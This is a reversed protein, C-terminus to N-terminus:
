RKWLRGCAVTSGRRRFVIGEARNTCIARSPRNIKIGLVCPTKFAKIQVELYGSLHEGLADFEEPTRLNPGEAFPVFDFPNPYHDAM